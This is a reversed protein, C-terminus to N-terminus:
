LAFQEDGTWRPKSAMSMAAKKAPTLRVVPRVYPMRLSKEANDLARNCMDSGCDCLNWVLVNPTLKAIRSAHEGRQCLHM